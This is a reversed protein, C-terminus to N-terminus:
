KLYIMKKTSIFENSEFRYIYIGSPLASADMKVKYFGPEYKGETVTLVKEGLITYVNIKLETTKPATFQINTAPNFPNPYNQLLEFSGPTISVEISDSYKYQGNNDIQKLRYEFNSGGNIITDIYRYSRPSNSNGYGEVFAIRKWNQSGSAKREIEFGYNNVETATEWNLFVKNMSVSATFSILEVPFPPTYKSILEIGEGTGLNRSYLKDVPNNWHEHTGLSGIVTGDNEPDYQIGTPWNSSSAAQHLYDDVGDMQVYTGSGDGSPRSSTFESRLFDYGVSEIAVPDLSLFISSMWDNNFPEMFFKKPYSNAQDSSWLADMLYLLNKEGTLEHGMLDVTVRYKGYGPETVGNEMQNPAPLGCHLHVASSRTNSGFHNKAFMTVGARRHGKLMPINLIYEAEEFITYLYDQTVPSGAYADSFNGTRLKAGRDSYYIKATASATFKERGLTSYNYDMYHVNPFESHWMDYCHKYIHKMPDGIYIKDQPVEVVNVLQRLVALVIQPSTESMGYNSNNVVTLDSPNFNGSWSSTANIKIFIKETNSYGVAGKGKNNNYFSFIAQWAALDTTQDTLRQLGNSLMIDIVSQNNNESLFWGNGYQNPICNENTADPEHEWVVRGPFIGRATGIPQNPDELVSQNYAFVDHDTHLFTSFSVLIGLFLFITYLLTRSEVFYKKAKKFLLFSSILGLIYIVFSSAIPAAAQMCPYNARSPKPIVRILFWILAGFGVIPFILKSILRKM